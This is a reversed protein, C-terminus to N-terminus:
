EDEEDELELERMRADTFGGPPVMRFFDGKEQVTYGQGILENVKEALPNAPHRTLYRSTTSTPDHSTENNM